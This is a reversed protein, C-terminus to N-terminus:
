VVELEIDALVRKEANSLDLDQQIKGLTPRNLFLLLIPLIALALFFIYQTFFYAFFGFFAPFTLVSWKLAVAQSYARLKPSLRSKRKVLVISRQFHYNALAIALLLIVPVLYLFDNKLSLQKPIKASFLFGLSGVAIASGLLIFHALQLKKLYQHFNM